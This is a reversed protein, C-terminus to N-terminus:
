MGEIGVLINGSVLKGMGNYTETKVNGYGKGYWTKQVGSQNMGLVKTSTTQEVVVCEINKGDVTLTEMAVVKQGTVNSTTKIGAINITMSYDPYVDGVKADSPLSFPTGNVTVQMGQMVQGVMSQPDYTVVDDKVKFEQVIPAALLPNMKKDYVMSEYTVTCNSRSGVVEKVILTSYGNHKGKADTDAITLKAGEEYLFYANQAYTQVLFALVFVALTIIKKMNIKM